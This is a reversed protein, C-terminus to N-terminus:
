IWTRLRISRHLRLYCLCRNRFFDGTLLRVAFAELAFSLPPVSQEAQFVRQITNILAIYMNAVRVIVTYM